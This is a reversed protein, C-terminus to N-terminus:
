KRSPRRDALHEIKDGMDKVVNGSKEFGHKEFKKGVSELVDGATHLGKQLLVGASALTKQTEGKIQQSQGESKLTPNGM